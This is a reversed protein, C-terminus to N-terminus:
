EDIIADIRQWREPKFISPDQGCLIELRHCEEINAACTEGDFERHVRRTPPYLRLAEKVVHLPAIGESEPGAEHFIEPYWKYAESCKIKALYEALVHSWKGGDNAQRFRIGLICRIVVRWMTEFAPLIWNMPNHEPITPDLLAESRDHLSTPDATARGTGRLLKTFLTTLGHWGGRAKGLLTAIVVNQPLMDFYRRLPQLQILWANVSRVVTATEAAAGSRPALVRRLADHLEEEDKWEPRQGDNAQAKSKIWIKNIHDGIMLIDDFTDSEQQLQGPFLYHLSLKLTVFQVLKALSLRKPPPLRIMYEDCYKMAHERLDSWDEAQSPGSTLGENADSASQKLRTSMNM